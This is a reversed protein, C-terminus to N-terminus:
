FHGPPSLSNGNENSGPLCTPDQMGWCASQSRRLQPKVRGFAMLTANIVAQFSLRLEGIMSGVNIVAHICSSASPKDEM